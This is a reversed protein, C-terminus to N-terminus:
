RSPQIHGTSVKTRGAPILQELSEFASVFRKQDLANDCFARWNKGFDFAINKQEDM